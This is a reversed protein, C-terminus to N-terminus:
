DKHLSKPIQVDMFFNPLVIMVWGQLHGFEWQMELNDHAMRSM